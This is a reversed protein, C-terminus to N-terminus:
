LWKNKANQYKTILNYIGAKFNTLALVSDNFMDVIFGRDELGIKIRLIM